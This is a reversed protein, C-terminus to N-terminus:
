ALRASEGPVRKGLVRKLDALILDGAATPRSHITKGPALVRFRLKPPFELLRVELWPEDRFGHGRERAFPENVIGSEDFDKDM